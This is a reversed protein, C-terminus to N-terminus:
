CSGRANRPAPAPRPASGLPSLRSPAPRPPAPRPGPHAAPPPTSDLTPGLRRRIPHPRPIAVDPPPPPQETPRLVSRLPPRRSPVPGSPALRPGPRPRPQLGATLPTRPFAQFCGLLPRGAAHITSRATPLQRHRPRALSCSVTYVCVLNITSKFM